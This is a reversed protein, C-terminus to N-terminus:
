GNVLKIYQNLLFRALVPNIVEDAKLHLTSRPKPVYGLFHILNIVTDSYPHNSDIKGDKNVPCAIKAKLLNNEIRLCNYGLTKLAGIHKEQAERSSGIFDPHIMEITITNELNNETGM